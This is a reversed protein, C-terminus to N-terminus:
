DEDFITESKDETGSIAKRASELDGRALKEYWTILLRGENEGYCNDGFGIWIGGLTKIFYYKQNSGFQRDFYDSPKFHIGEDFLTDDVASSVISSDELAPKFGFGIHLAVQPKNSYKHHMAEITVGEGLNLNELGRIIRNSRGSGIMPFNNAM